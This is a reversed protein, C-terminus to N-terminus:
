VAIRWLTHSVGRRTLWLITLELVLTIIDRRLRTSIGQNKTFTEPQALM